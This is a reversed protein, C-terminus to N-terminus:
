SDNRILAQYTYCSYCKIWIATYAIHETTTDALQIASITQQKKKPYHDGYSCVIAMSMYIFVASLGQELVVTDVIHEIANNQKM